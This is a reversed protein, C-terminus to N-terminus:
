FPTPRNAASSSPRSTAVMAHLVDHVDEREEPGLTRRGPRYDRPNGGLDAAEDVPTTLHSFEDWPLHKEGETDLSSNSDGLPHIIIRDRARSVANCGDSM